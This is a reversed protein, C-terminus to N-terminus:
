RKLIKRIEGPSSTNIVDKSELWGRRAMGVGFKMFELHSLRHADTGISFRLGYERAKMINEDNLDLRSPFSNIEMIVGNRKAAEFVKDIDIDIPGRENILRGTPHALIDVYGSDLATTIRKTMEDRSMNRNTHVACLRYDMEDLTKRSLDLSGDKLIDIEASKLIVIKGEYREAAKDVVKFYSEFQKDNMGRAVYESKTHDTLGIYKRGLRIAERILDDIDNSSDGSYNTHTHLDGKIDELRVLKPLKHKQALEIEGRGERMEPEIYDMGLKGYVSEEDSGAIRRDKGDFLGYESLKYGMKVAIQRVQINHDKSGTFYQLAAGFSEAEIVRFDCTLGIKLEVTTKTPGKVVVSKTEPMSSVFDMVKDNNKSIVLIDLDGVTEKMRRTSGAIVAKEALGSKIIKDVIREAEPLATGLLMRGGISQLMELGKKIEEESKEGFGELKSISHSEVAKKLSDINNVGLDKYLRLIKKAGLGQIRTLSAFDIPYKGKLEDYKKMRGTAVFEQIREAITKGIGPLALLGDIGKKQIIDGVDEQLTSVTMAAKQYARVEFSHDGPELMLMDAIENFMESIQKNYM